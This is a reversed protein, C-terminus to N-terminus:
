AVAGLDGNGLIHGDQWFRPADPYLLDHRRVIGLPSSAPKSAQANELSQEATLGQDVSFEQRTSMIHNM